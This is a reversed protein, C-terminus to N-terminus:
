ITASAYVSAPPGPLRRGPRSVWARVSVSQSGPRCVPLLRCRPRRCRVRVPAIALSTLSLFPLGGDGVDGIDGIEGAFLAALLALLGIAFIVGFVVTVWQGKRTDGARDGAGYVATM